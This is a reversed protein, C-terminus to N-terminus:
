MVGLHNQLKQIARRKTKSVAQQTIGFRNAIEIEKNGQLYFLTLISRERETLTQVARLVREDGIVEGLLDNEDFAIDMNVCLKQSFEEELPQHLQYQKRERVDFEIATYRIVSSIYKILRIESYFKKFRENLENSTDKDDPHDVWKRYLKQIEPQKLFSRMLKNVQVNDIAKM